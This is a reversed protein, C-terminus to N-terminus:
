TLLGVLLMGLQLTGLLVLVSVSATILMMRWPHADVERMMDAGKRKMFTVPCQIAFRGAMAEQFVYIMEELDQFRQDQQKALGKSVFHAFEAPIKPQHPHEVFAPPAPVEEIIGWILDRINTKHSLYHKLTMWEYYLAALSYIDSREDIANVQGLAQEPPMYAPTGMLTGVRTEFLRQREPTQTETNICEQVEAPLASQHTPLTCSTKPTDKIKKAIGWDMVMVEGYDGIMINEPKLDRHIIGQKHAFQVAQLVKLFIQNRVEFPFREHTPEHGADLRKIVDAMTKGQVYKMVFYYQGNENIGVDHIPVINPHELQGVTQIEEVFRALNAPIHHEKKLRKLAVLRQIDNDKALLVDGAAGEGLDKMEEYRDRQMVHLVPVEGKLQAKPLITTRKGLMSEPLQGEPLEGIVDDPMLTPGLAPDDDPVDADTALLAAAKSQSPTVSIVDDHNFDGGISLSDETPLPEAEDKSTEGFTKTQSRDEEFLPEEPAEAYAITEKGVGFANLPTATPEVVTRSFDAGPGDLTTRKGDQESSLPTKHPKSADMPM